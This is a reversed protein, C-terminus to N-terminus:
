DPFRELNKRALGNGPFMEILTELRERALDPDGEVETLIADLIWMDQDYPHHVRCIDVAARATKLNGSVILGAGLWYSIGPSHDEDEDFRSRLRDVSQELRPVFDEDDFRTRMKGSVTRAGPYELGAESAMSIALKVPSLTRNWSVKHYIGIGAGVLLLVVSAVSVVRLAGPKRFMPALISPDPTEQSM